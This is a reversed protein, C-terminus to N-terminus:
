AGAPHDPPSDDTPSRDAPNRHGLCLLIKGVLRPFNVPKNEFEDCGAERAEREHDELVHATLVIVPIARTSPAAKLQRLVEYGDM